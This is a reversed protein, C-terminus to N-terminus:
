KAVIRLDRCDKLTVVRVEEICPQSMRLSATAKLGAVVQRSDVGPGKFTVEM